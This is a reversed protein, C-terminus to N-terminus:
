CMRTTVDLLVLVTDKADRYRSLAADRGTSQVETLTASIFADIIKVTDFLTTADKNPNRASM